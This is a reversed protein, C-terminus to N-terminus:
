ISLSDFEKVSKKTLYTYLGFNVLAYFVTFILLIITENLFVGLVTTLTIFVILLGMGLMVAIFSSTSQKVVEASNEADLKPYKLNIILGLFHSILPLLISLVLILIGNIIGVNFRIILIIDGIVLPITTIKLAAYIKSMLIDKTKLPLSKLININRGELSVVSNTISTMLSTFTVLILILITKNGLLFSKLMNGADMKEILPIVSDFKIAIVIAIIIFLFLGFGANVIFVPINFFTKIEKSVLSKMQSKSQIKLNGVSVKKNSTVKKLRSNISFYFKSLIFITLGFLGLNILIFILLDIINFNTALKAYLGAPYYIKTMISDIKDAHNGLYELASNMNFSIFMVGVLVIMTIVIQLANKYKFRSSISTTIAGLICSIVIPIVPLLIVMIITTLYFTWDINKTWVVYSLALPIFFLSNFLLEFVYFKLIRIFLVTGRKIPLSLLLSDDKCNFMIPGSKYIGEYITLLSTLFVSLSLLVTQMNVKSLVEMFMNGYGFMAIMIVMALVIPLSKSNKKNNQKQRIKFLNMDSSMTAKILSYLKKM